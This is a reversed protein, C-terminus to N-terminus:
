DAPLVPESQVPPRLSQFISLLALSVVHAIASVLFIRTPCAHRMELLKDTEIVGGAVAVM